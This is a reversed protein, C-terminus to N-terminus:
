WCEEVTEVVTESVSGDPWYNKTTVVKYLQGRKVGVGTASRATEMTHTFNSPLQRDALEEGLFLDLDLLSPINMNASEPVETEKVPM